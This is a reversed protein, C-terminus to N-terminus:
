GYPVLVESVTYYNGNVMAYVTIVYTYGTQLGSASVKYVGYSGDRLLGGNYLVYSGGRWIRGLSYYGDRIYVYVNEAPVTLSPLASWGVAGSLSAVSDTMNYVTYTVGINRPVGGEDLALVGVYVNVLGAGSNSVDIVANFGGSTNEYGALSVMLGASIESLRAMVQQHARAQAIAPTLYYVLGLALTVAISVIIVTSILEAQARAVAADGICIGCVLGSSM